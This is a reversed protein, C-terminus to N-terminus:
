GSQPIPSFKIVHIILTDLSASIEFLLWMQEFFSAFGAQFLSKKM